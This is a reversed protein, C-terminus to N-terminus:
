NEVPPTEAEHAKASAEAPERENLRREFAERLKEGSVHTQYRPRKPEVKVIRVDESRSGHCRAYAEAEGLARWENRHGRKRLGV